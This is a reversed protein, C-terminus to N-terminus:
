YITLSTGNWVCACYSGNNRATNSTPPHYLNVAGGFFVANTPGAGQTWTVSIDVTNTFSANKVYFNVPSAGYASLDFNLVYASATTDVTAVPYYANVGVAQTLNNITGSTSTPFTLPVVSQTFTPTAWAPIGSSVTVVQGESGTANNLTISGAPDLVFGSKARITSTTINGSLDVALGSNITSVSLTSITATNFPSIISTGNFTLRTTDM